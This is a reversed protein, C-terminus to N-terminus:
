EGVDSNSLKCGVLASILMKDQKVGANGFIVTADEFANQFLIMAEDAQAIKLSNNYYLVFLMDGGGDCQVVNELIATAIDAASEGIGFEFVFESSGKLVHHLDYFDFCNIGWSSVANLPGLFHNVLVIEIGWNKDAVIFDRCHIKVPQAFYAEPEVQRGQGPVDKLFCMQLSVTRLLGDTELDAFEFVLGSLGSKGTKDTYVVDGGFTPLAMKLWGAPVICTTTFSPEDPFADRNCQEYDFRYRISDNILEKM